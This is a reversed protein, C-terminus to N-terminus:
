GVGHHDDDDQRNRPERRGSGQDHDAVWRGADAGTPHSHRRLSTQSVTKSGSARQGQWSATNGSRSYTGRSSSVSGRTRTQADLAPSSGFVLATLTIAVTLHRRM